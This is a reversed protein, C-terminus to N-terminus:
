AVLGAPGATAVDPSDLRVSLADYGYFWETEMPVRMWSNDISIQQIAHVRPVRVASYRSFATEPDDFSQICRALVAADEIAMSAGAAMFPRVPHCADGLLVVPGTHWHDNRPRDCLASVTVTDIADFLRTLDPHFDRFGEIFHARTAAVPSPNGDWDDAPVAGMLYLDERRPSMFYSVLHRDPGWWKTCDRIAVKPLRERPIVARPAMKGIYRPEEAGLIAARVVSRLGDSGIVIDADHRTGNDFHLRVADHRTDIGSLRHAFEISGPLLPEQLLRHLDARHINVFAGGFRQEREADFMYEYFVEGTDWRRSVYADPRLGTANFQREVALGRLVKGVNAGLIIGAGISGFDAAQEFVRVSFGARQLLGAVTLGGIGGGIVAIRTTLDM